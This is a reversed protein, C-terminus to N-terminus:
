HLVPHAICASNLVDAPLDRISTKLMQDLGSQTQVQRVLEEASPAAPDGFSPFLTSAFADFASIGWFEKALTILGSQSDRHFVTCGMYPKIRPRWPLSLVGEIRWVVLMRREEDQKIPDVTAIAILDCRSAAHNFLHTSASLYKRLGEVPMDPDPGDFVCDEAFYTSSVRGTVQCQRESFDASLRALVEEHSADVVKVVNQNSAFTRLPLLGFSLDLSKHRSALWRGCLAASDILDSARRRFFPCRITSVDFQELIQRPSRAVAGDIRHSARPPFNQRQDKDPGINFFKKRAHKTKLVPSPPLFAGAHFVACTSIVSAAVFFIVFKM